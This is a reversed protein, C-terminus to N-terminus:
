DDKCVHIMYNVSVDDPALKYVKTIPNYTLGTEDLLRFGYERCWASLESPRIFKKFEHTGRPVLNLLYEAGVIAFVFAKPNRNITSVFLQGGPKLLRQCQEIIAAPDPVHELMELCNIIDYQGEHEAGLAEIGTLQYQVRDTLGSQEAHATAVQIAVTSLDIGLVHAGRQAMAEAMLGGGCGVDLIRKGAVGGCRGEIYSARLPNIEHLPKFESEPDWWRAAVDDFKAVEHPDVNSM